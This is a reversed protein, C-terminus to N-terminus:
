PSSIPAIRPRHPAFPLRCCHARKAAEDDKRNKKVHAAILAKMIEIPTTKLKM